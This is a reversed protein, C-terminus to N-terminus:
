KKKEQKLLHSLMAEAAESSIPQDVSIEPVRELTGATISETQPQPTKPKEGKTGEMKM